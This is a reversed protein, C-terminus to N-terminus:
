RWGAGAEHLGDILSKSPHWGTLETIRRADVELDGFLQDFVRQKGVLSAALRLLGPPPSSIKAEVGMGLAIAEVMERTPTTGDDAVLFTGGRSREIEIMSVIADALNEVGILSRRNTARGVPLTKGARVMEALRGFNGPARPGTVLPARLVVADPFVELIATEAEAKSTAYANHPRIPSQETYAHGPEHEAGHVGVTSLFIFSKAGAVEARKALHVSAEVNARRFEALPDSATEQMVHVRAALHVVADVPPLSAPWSDPVGLDFVVDNEPERGASIVDGVGQLRRAVWGGIFGSAGTVLVRM